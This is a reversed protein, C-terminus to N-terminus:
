EIRRKIDKLGTNIHGLTTVIVAQNKDLEDIRKDHDKIEVTQVANVTTNIEVDQGMMQSNVFFTGAVPAMLLILGTFITRKDLVIDRTDPTGNPKTQGIKM